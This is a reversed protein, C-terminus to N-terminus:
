PRPRGPVAWTRALGLMGGTDERTESLGKFVAASVRWGPRPRLSVGGILSEGDVLGRVVSDERDYMLYGSLRRAFRVNIGATVATTDQLDIGPPDGVRKRALDLFTSVRAGWPQTYSVGASVDVEGTGLGKSEDATPIKIRGLASVWPRRRLDGAVLFGEGRLVIDGPGSRSQRPGATGPSTPIGVGDIVAIDSPGDVALYPLVFSFEYREGWSKLILPAYLIDTTEPAGFEGSLLYVDQELTFRRAPASAAPRSDPGPGAAEASSPKTESSRSPSALALPTPVGFALETLALWVTCLLRPGPTSAARRV